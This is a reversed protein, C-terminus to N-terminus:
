VTERTPAETPPAARRAAHSDHAMTSKMRL